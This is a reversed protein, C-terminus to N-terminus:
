ELRAPLVLYKFNGEPLKPNIKEKDENDFDPIILMAGVPSNMIIKINETDCARLAEIMYKHYFGITLNEGETMCNVEDHFNGTTSNCSISVGSIDFDAKICSRIKESILLSARSIANAYEKANIKVLTNASEPIASRYNFFNGELLRSTVTCNDFEFLIHKKCLTINIDKNEDDIIKLIENLTKSPVIFQFKEKETTNKIVEKRIAVRFGDLSVVTLVDGEIEFARQM